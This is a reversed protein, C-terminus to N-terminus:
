PMLGLPLIPFFRDVLPKGAEGLKAAYHERSFPEGTRLDFLEHWTRPQPIETLQVKMFTYNLGSVEQVGDILFYHGPMFVSEVEEPNESFL